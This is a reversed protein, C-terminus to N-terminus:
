CGPCHCPAARGRRAHRARRACPAASLYRVTSGEARGLLSGSRPASPRLLLRAAASMVLPPQAAPHRAARGCPARTHPERAEQTHGHQMGTQHHQVMTQTGHTNEAHRQCACFINIIHLCLFLVAVRSLRPKRARGVPGHGCAAIWAGCAGRVARVRARAREQWRHGDRGARRRGGGRRPGAAAPDDGAGALVRRSRILRAFTYIALDRTAHPCTPRTRRELRVKAHGHITGM